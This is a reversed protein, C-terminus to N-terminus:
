CCVTENNGVTIDPSAKNLWNSSSCWLSEPNLWMNRVIVTVQRVVVASGVILPPLAHTRSFVATSLARGQDRSVSVQPCLGSNSALWLCVFLRSYFMSYYIIPVFLFVYYLHWYFMCDILQVMSKDITSCLIILVLYKRARNINLTCIVIKSYM